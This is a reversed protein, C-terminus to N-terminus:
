MSLNNNQEEMKKIDILNNEFYVSLVDEAEEISEHKSHIKGNEDLLVFFKEEITYTKEGEILSTEKIEKKVTEEVIKFEEFNHKSKLNPHQYIVENNNLDVRIAVIHNTIPSSYKNLMDNLSLHCKNIYDGIYEFSQKHLLHYRDNFSILIPLYFDEVKNLEIIGKTEYLENWVLGTEVDGLILNVFKQDNRCKELVQIIEDDMEKPYAINIEQNYQNKGKIIKYKQTNM